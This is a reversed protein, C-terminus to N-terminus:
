PRAPPPRVGPHGDRHRRRARHQRRATLTQGVTWTPANTLTGNPAGAISSAITTGTGEDLGYRAILGTGTTLFHDRDALIQATTRAVNWIRAEDIVGPLLRRTPSAGTSTLATGLAAHQISTAEPSSPAASHWRRTSTATSTCGGPAPRPTTPPPPTIGSTATVVTTGAVPHNPGSRHGRLRGRAHRQAADIGLFYNMNINAPTEAEAGGKTILPIASTIGGTGTTVGIGAGTRKFWTELTFTTVGLAPAAGFTVYQNTGNFQLASGAAATPTASVDTSAASANGSATSRSSSTTTPRATSARDLRHLEAVDALTAGNLPTGTTPM